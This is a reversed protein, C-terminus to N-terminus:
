ASERARPQVGNRPTASQATDSTTDFPRSRRCSLSLGCLRARDMRIKLTLAVFLSFPPLRDLNKLNEM